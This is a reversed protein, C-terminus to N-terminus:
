QVNATAKDEGIAYCQARPNECCGMIYVGIAGMLPSKAQGNGTELWGHRFRWRNTATRWGFLSGVVFTHWELPYFPQGAAPGDTVQFVAPLFGLAHAAEEPRWFIGRREGDRIDRLHREAAHRVLEGVPFLKGEVAARAWATTPDPDALFRNPM